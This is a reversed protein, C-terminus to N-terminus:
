THQVAEIEIIRSSKNVTTEACSQEQESVLNVTANATILEWQVEDLNISKQEESVDERINYWNKNRGTAKGARGTVTVKIWDDTNNKNTSFSIM